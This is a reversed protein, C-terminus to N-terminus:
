STPTIILLDGNQLRDVTCGQSYSHVCVFLCVLVCVSGRLCIRVRASHMQGQRLSGQFAFSRHSYFLCKNM